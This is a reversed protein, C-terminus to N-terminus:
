VAVDFLESPRRRPPPILHERTEGIVPHLESFLEDNEASAVYRHAYLAAMYLPEMIFFDCLFLIMLMSGTAPCNSNGASHAVLALGIVEGCFFLWGCLGGMKYWTRAPALFYKKEFTIGVELATAATSSAGDDAAGAEGSRVILANPMMLNRMREAEQEDRAEQGATSKRKKQSSYESDNDDDDGDSSAYEGIGDLSYLQRSENPSAPPLDNLRRTGGASSQQRSRDTLPGMSLKVAGSSVTTHEEEDGESVRAATSIEDYGEVFSNLSKYSKELRDRAARKGAGFSRRYGGSRSSPQSAADDDDDPPPLFDDAGIDVSEIDEVGAIRFSRIPPLAGPSGFDAPDLLKPLSGSLAAALSAEVEKVVAADSEKPVKKKASAANQLLRSSLTTQSVNRGDELSRGELNARIAEDVRRAIDEDDAQKKLKEEKDDEDDDDDDRISEEGQTRKFSKYYNEKILADVDIEDYDGFDADPAALMEVSGGRQGNRAGTPSTSSGAGFGFNDDDDVDAGFWGFSSTEGFGKGGGGGAHLSNRPSELSFDVAYVDQRKNERSSYQRWEGGGEDGALSSSSPSSTALYEGNNNCLEIWAAEITEVDFTVRFFFYHMLPRPIHAIFLPIFIILTQKLPVGGEYGLAIM